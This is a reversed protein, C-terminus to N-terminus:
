TLAAISLVKMAAVNGTRAATMLPTRGLPLTENPDAGATLLAEIMAADGNVSALWLPTSGERNAAKAIRALASCCTPSRRTARSVGGLAPGDRWGGATRERRGETRVLARVAAVDGRAAADAVESKSAAGPTVFNVVIVFIVFGSLGLARALRTDMTSKTVKSTKTRTM